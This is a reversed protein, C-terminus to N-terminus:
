RLKKFYPKRDSWFTGVSDGQIFISNGIPSLPAKSFYDPVLENINNPFRGNKKKFAQSYNETQQIIIGTERLQWEHKNWYFFYYVLIALFFFIVGTFKLKMGLVRSELRKIIRPSFVAVLIGLVAFVIEFYWGPYNYPLHIRQILALSNACVFIGAVFCIFLQFSFIFYRM